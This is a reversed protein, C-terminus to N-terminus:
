LTYSELSKFVINTGDPGEIAVFRIYAGAQLCITLVTRDEETVGYIQYAEKGAVTIQAQTINTVGSGKLEEAYAKSINYAGRGDDELYMMKISYKKDQSVYKLLNPSNSTDKVYDYPILMYGFNQDGVKVDSTDIKEKEKEKEKETTETETTNTTNTNKSPFLLLVILLVVVVLLIGIVIILPLLSTNDDKNNNPNYNPIFKNNYNTGNNYQNYGNYNNNYGGNYNNGNNYYGQNM